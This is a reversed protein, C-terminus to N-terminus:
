IKQKKIQMNMDREAYEQWHSWYASFEHELSFEGLNGVFVVHPALSSNILARITDLSLFPIVDRKLVYNISRAFGDDSRISVPSGFVIVTIKKQEESTLLTKACATEAGGISHAYHIIHGDETGGVEHILRKWLAALRRAHDSIYGYKVLICLTNDNNWAQTGRYVYHVNREHGKFILQLAEQLEAEHNLIGNIYTIRLNDKHESSGYVGCRPSETHCAWRFLTDGLFAKGISDFKEYIVLGDAIDGGKGAPVEIPVIMNKKFLDKKPKEYSIVLDEEETNLYNVLSEEILHGRGNHELNHESLIQGSSDELIRQSLHPIGKNSNEYARNEIMVLMWEESKPDKAYTELAQLIKRNSNFRYIERIGLYDYIVETTDNDYSYQALIKGDPLKQAIVRGQADRECILFSNPESQDLGTQLNVEYHSTLSSINTEAYGLAPCFVFFFVNLITLSTIRLRKM